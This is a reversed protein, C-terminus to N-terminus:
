LKRSIYIYIVQYSFKITFVRIIHTFIFALFMIYRAQYAEATTITIFVTAVKDFGQLHRFM